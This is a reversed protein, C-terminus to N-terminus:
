SAIRAGGILIIRLTYIAEIIRPEINTEGDMLAHKGNYLNNRQRFLMDKRVTNFLKHTSSPPQASTVSSSYPNAQMLLLFVSTREPPKIRKLISFNAIESFLPLTM